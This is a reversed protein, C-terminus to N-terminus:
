RAWVKVARNYIVFVAIIMLVVHVGMGKAAGIDSYGMYSFSFIVYSLLAVVLPDRSRVSSLFMSIASLMISLILSGFFVGVTGWNAYLEPFSQPGATGPSGYRHEFLREALSKESSIAGLLRTFISRGHEFDFVQPYLDFVFISATGKVLFVRELLRVLAGLVNLFTSGQEGMRGMTATVILMGLLGLLGYGLLKKIEFKQLLALWVFIVILVQGILLRRSGGISTLFIISLSVGGLWLLIKKNRITSFHILALSFVPIVLVQLYSIFVDFYGFSIYRAERLSRMDDTADSVVGSSLLAFLANFNLDKIVVPFFLAWSMLLVMLVFKYTSNYQYSKLDSVDFESRRVYSFRSRLVIFFVMGLLFGILSLVSSFRAIGKNDIGDYLVLGPHVLISYILLFLAIPTVKIPFSNNISFSVILNLFILLCSVFVMVDFSLPYRDNRFFLDGHADFLYEEVNSVFFILFPVVSVFISIILQVRSLKAKLM